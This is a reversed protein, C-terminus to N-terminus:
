RNEAAKSGAPPGGAAGYTLPQWWTGTIGRVWIQCAAHIVQILHRNSVPGALLIRLAM